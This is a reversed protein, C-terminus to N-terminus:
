FLTSAIVSAAFRSGTVSPHFGDPGYYSYDGTNDQYSKWDRGVPCLLSGTQIAADTYNQIVGPFSEYYSLSPWVMFFALQAGQAECLNKIRTGYEILVSRGYPQSSPGQQIVVFDYQGTGILSQITGDNWHDILAYNPLAVSRTQINVGRNRAEDAVLSPLSNSYTLSNGIFLVSYDYVQSSNGTGAGVSDGTSRDQSDDTSCSILAIVMWLIKVTKM